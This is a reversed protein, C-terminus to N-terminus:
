VEDLSSDVLISINIKLPIDTIRVLVYVDVTKTTKWTITVDGDQPEKVEGPFTVSNIESSKAMERLDKMFYQEHAKISITSSNFSRDAIKSIGKLLIRRAVKDVVRVTEASQYDGGEADLTRDDSWYYGDYGTHWMPVSYRLGELTQLTALSLEVGQADVPKEDSGLDKVAGTQVRALSDAITVARNCSRGANVFPENGFLKPVLTIAYDNFGSQLKSLRAEYESWKETEKLGSVGLIFRTWRAYKAIFEARFNIAVQIDSADSIEDIVIAEFYGIEAARKLTHELGEGNYRILVSAYFGTGANLIASKIGKKFASDNEGLLVDLDSDASISHIDGQVDPNENVNGIFLFRREVEKTEGNNLNLQSVTVSPWTM